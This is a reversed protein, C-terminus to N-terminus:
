VIDFAAVLRMLARSTHVGTKGYIRKLHSRVTAPSIGMDSAIGEPSSLRVFQDLVAAEKRTLSFQNALGNSLCDTVPTSFALRLVRASRDAIDSAFLRMVVWSDGSGVQVMLRRAQDTSRIFSDFRRQTEEDPMVLKRADRSVLGREALGHLADRNAWIVSGDVGAIVVPTTDCLSQALKRFDARPLEQSTDSVEAAGADPSPARRNDPAFRSSPTSRRSASSSRLGALLPKTRNASPM